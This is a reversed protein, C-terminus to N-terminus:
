LLSGKYVYYAKQLKPKNRITMSVNKRDKSSIDIVVFYSTFEVIYNMNVINRQHVRLFASGLIGIIDEIKMRVKLESCHWAGNVENKIYFHLYHKDSTIWVIDSQRFTQMVGDVKISLHESEAKLSKVYKICEIINDRFSDETKVLYRVLGYHYGKITFDYYNTSFAIPVNIGKERIIQAAELGSMGPMECDLLILNYNALKNEDDILDSGCNYADIYCKENSSSFYESVIEKELSIFKENDDCLAIRFM